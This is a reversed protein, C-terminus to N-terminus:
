ILEDGTSIYGNPKGTIVSAKDFGQYITTSHSFTANGSQIEVSHDSQGNWSGEQSLTKDPSLNLQDAWSTNPLLCLFILQVLIFLTLRKTLKIDM